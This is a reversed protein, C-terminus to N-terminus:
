IGHYLATMNRKKKFFAAKGALPIFEPLKETLRRGKNFKCGKEYGALKMLTVM